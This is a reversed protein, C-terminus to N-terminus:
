KARPHRLWSQSKSYVEPYFHRSTWFHGVTQDWFWAGTDNGGYTYVWGLDWKYLWPRYVTNIWGFWDSGVWGKETLFGSNIPFPDVRKSIWIQGDFGIEEKPYKIIFHNKSYLVSMPRYAKASSIDLRNAPDGTAPRIYPEFLDHKLILDTRLFGNGYDIATILDPQLSPIPATSHPPVGYHTGQSRYNWRFENSYFRLESNYAFGGPVDLAKTAQTIATRLEPIYFARSLTADIVVWTGQRDRAYIQKDKETSRALEGFGEPCYKTNPGPLERELIQWSIGDSSFYVTDPSVIRFEGNGFDLTSNESVTISSAVWDRGNSSSIVDGRDGLFVIRGGGDALDMVGGLLPLDITEPLITLSSSVIIAIPRDRAPVLAEWAPEVKPDESILVAGPSDYNYPPPEELNAYVSKGDPTLLKNDNYILIRDQLNFAIGELWDIESIEADSDSLPLLVRAETPHINGADDFASGIGEFTLSFEGHVNLFAINYGWLAVERSVHIDEVIIERFLSWEALDESVFIGIKQETKVPAPPPNGAEGPPRNSPPPPAPHLYTQAAWWLGNSFEITTRNMEHINDPLFSPRLDAVSGDANLVVPYVDKAAYPIEKKSYYPLVKRGNGQIVGPQGSVLTWSKGDTSTVWSGNWMRAYLAGDSAEYFSGWSFERKVPWVQERIDSAVLTLYGVTLVLIVCVLKM